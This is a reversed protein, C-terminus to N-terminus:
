LQMCAQTDPERLLFGPERGTMSNQHSKQLSVKRVTSGTEEEERGAEM